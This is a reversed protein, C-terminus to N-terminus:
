KDADRANSASTATGLRGTAATSARGGPQLVCLQQRPQRHMHLLLLLCKTPATASPKTNCTFPAALAHPLVSPTSSHKYSWQTSICSLVHLSLLLTHPNINWPQAQEGLQWIAPVVLVLHLVCPQEHTQRPVHYCHLHTLTLLQQCNSVITARCLLCHRRSLPLLLSESAQCENVTGQAGAELVSRCVGCSVICPCLLMFCFMLVEGPLGFVLLRRGEKLEVTAFTLPKGPKMCVRGFHVVGQRELLPKILDRDGMSVGGTLVPSPVFTYSQPSLCTDGAALRILLCDLPALMGACCQMYNCDGM